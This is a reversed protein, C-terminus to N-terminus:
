ISHDVKLNKLNSIIKDARDLQKGYTNNRAFNIRNNALEEANWKGLDAITERFLFPLAENNSRSETMRILEPYDRYTSINNSIIVKGTSLYEMVKHYNTGKSQDMQMDYCILLADMQNLSRALDVKKFVGHLKVNELERLNGIFNEADEGEAAGINSQTIEYIGYFNFTVEPNEYIIRLLLKRDLDPRLFNGSLGVNISGQQIKHGAGCDLFEDALGHNIFFSPIQLSEYKEIIERTVSFLIDAGTGALIANRDRPEDVPHFIKFLKREFFPIPFLNGLDFSWLIDLPKPITRTIQWIQKKILLNYLYRSHFKLGYPFYLEQHIIFLNPHDSLPEISIRKQRKRWSWHHNDPPNLFYVENGRKALELAYHHKALLIDGWSQPTLILVVKGTLFGADVM